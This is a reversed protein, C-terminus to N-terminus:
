ETKIDVTPLNEVKVEMIDFCDPIDIKAPLKYDFWCEDKAEQMIELFTNYSEAVKVFKEQYENAWIVCQKMNNLLQALVNLKDHINMKEELHRDQEVKFTFDDIKTYTRKSDM